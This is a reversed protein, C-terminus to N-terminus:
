RYASSATRADLSRWFADIIQQAQQRAGRVSQFRWGLVFPAGIVSILLNMSVGLRASSTSFSVDVEVVSPPEQPEGTIRVVVEGRDFLSYPRKLTMTWSRPADSQVERDFAETVADRVHEELQVPSLEFV